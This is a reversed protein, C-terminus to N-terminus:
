RYTGLKKSQAIKKVLWEPPDNQGNEYDSVVNRTTGFRLAFESRALGLSLRLDKLDEGYLRMGTEEPFMM